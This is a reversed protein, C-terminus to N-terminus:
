GHRGGTSVGGGSGRTLNGFYWEHLVMGNYEFGLRRTLEAYVPTAGQGDAGFTPTFQGAFGGTANTALASEDVTLIPANTASATITPGDDDFNIFSGVEKTLSNTSTTSFNRGRTTSRRGSRTRPRCNPM